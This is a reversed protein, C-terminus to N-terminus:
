LAWAMTEGTCVAVVSVHTYFGSDRGNCQHTAGQGWCPALGSGVTERLFHAAVGLSHLAGNARARHRAM